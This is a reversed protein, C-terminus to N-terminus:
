RLPLSIEDIDTAIGTNAGQGSKSSRCKISNIRKIPSQLIKLFFFDMIKGTRINILKILSFNNNSGITRPTCKM